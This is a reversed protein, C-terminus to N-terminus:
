KQSKDIKLLPLGKKYRDLDWKLNFNACYTAMDELGVEKRRKDLNDPDEIPSVVLEGTKDDSGLQSGYIQKKGEKLLVRDELLALDAANANGKKVADKLMPLYKEQTASDAHQIVLFLASNGKDGVEDPGLWGYKDLIAEVKEQNIADQANMKMAMIVFAATDKIGNIAIREIETRSSQDAEYLSDLEIALAKNKPAKAPTDKKTAQASVLTTALCFSLIIVFNRM